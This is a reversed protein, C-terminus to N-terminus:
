GQRDDGGEGATRQPPPSSNAFASVEIVPCRPGPAEALRADATVLSTGLTEALAVYWGDYVTLNHRLEWVREILPEFGYQATRVTRIGALAARARGTSIDERAHMSRVASMAEAAFISPVRLTHHDRLVERADNGRPGAVVMADVLVSADFVTLTRKSGRAAPVGLVRHRIGRKGRLFVAAARNRRRARGTDVHSRQLDAGCPPPGASEGTM